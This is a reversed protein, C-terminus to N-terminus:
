TLARVRSSRSVRFDITWPSRPWGTPRRSRGPNIAGGQLTSENATIMCEVGSVLGIGGILGAGARGGEIDAGALPCLELFWGDKDLLREIRERALLRGRGLHRGVYTEGGGERATRLHGALVQLSDHMAECNGVFADSDTDVHSSLVAM